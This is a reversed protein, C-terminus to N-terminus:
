HMRRRRAEAFVALLLAADTPDEFTVVVPAGQAICEGTPGSVFEVLRGKRVEVAAFGGAAISAVPNFAVARPACPQSKM